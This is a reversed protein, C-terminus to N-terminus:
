VAVERLKDSELSRLLAAKYRMLRLARRITRPSMRLNRFQDYKRLYFVIRDDATKRM